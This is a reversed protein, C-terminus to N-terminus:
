SERWINLLRDLLAQSSSLNQMPMVKTFQQKGNFYFDIVATESSQSFTYRQNWQNSNVNVVDIAHPEFVECIRQHFDSLFTEHFEFGDKGANLTPASLLSGKISAFRHELESTFTGAGRVQISSIKNKGNYNFQVEAYSDKHKLVYQEQYQHHRIDVIEISADQICAKVKKLLAVLVSKDASLGFHQLEEPSFDILDTSVLNEVEKNVGGVITTTGGIKIKPADVVYLMKSCRTIATYLWRFYDKCLPKLHSSCNIVVQEWESGQAKHCTIAYGFKLKFVNFYPDTKRAQKLQEEFGKRTLEKHRQLFDVNLARSEDVTLSPEESYLLNELIKARVLQPFNLQNRFLLEVDRFALEVTVSETKGDLKKKFTVSKTEVGSLLQTVLGFEGNTVNIDDRYHNAVSIVKDGACIQEQGPFFHERCQSNYSAVTRNSSAILMVQKTQAVSRGCLDMYKDIIKRSDVSEIDSSEVNFDLQNFVNKDITNRLMTANALVGSAAGQRVVEKLTEEVVKLQYNEALYDSSLAPSLKMNVPPLQANDGIFIIKRHLHGDSKEITKQSYLILDHLLRGSGFQLSATFAYNDAVMSAEDVIYVTEPSDFNQKVPAVPLHDDTEDKLFADSFDYIESHITSATHGTKESLVKAAKGTPSLLVCHRGLQTLYSVVGKTIFTKGTGAYGHLIFTDNIPSNIFEEIGTLARQQDVTLTIKAFEDHISVRSRTMGMKLDFSSAANRGSRQFDKLSEQQDQASLQTLQSNKLAMKFSALEAQTQQIDSERAEIKAQLAANDLRLKNVTDHQSEPANFEPIFVYSGQMSQLFWRGILYCEELLWLADKITLDLENHVAKNGYKRVVHLKGQIAEPVVKRFTSNQLRTLFSDNLEDNLQFRHFIYEVLLESYARLKFAATQPDDYLYAEAQKALQSLKLYDADLFSFNSPPM